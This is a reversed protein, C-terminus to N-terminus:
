FKWFILGIHRHNFDSSNRNKLVRPRVEPLWSVIQDNACYNEEVQVIKLCICIKTQTWSGEDEEEDNGVVEGVISNM